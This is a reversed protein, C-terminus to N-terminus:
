KGGKKLCMDILNVLDLIELGFDIGEGSKNSMTCKFHIQCKPCATVLTEAGTGKAELLRGTRIKESYFTCNIWASTGCCIAEERSNPMEELEIGPIMKILERPPEYIGLHHGLRCPDQYTVKKSFEQFELGGNDVMELIFESIHQVEFNLNVYEPYDKKFTRYGEPCSFIVKKAGTKEILQTNLKALKEFNEVDGTWLLDHGCCREDKMVAPEIGLKNLVSISSKANNLVNVGINKFVVDFFPACGVFYLIDGKKSTRLDSTLFGLRDQKLNPNTMTKSLSSMIGAHTCVGSIGNKLAYARSKRIFGTYDVGSPCKINCLNCTLCSWLGWDALIEDEFNNLAREVTLRPTYKETVRSIPCNVTCKGCELCYNAKTERIINEIEGNM